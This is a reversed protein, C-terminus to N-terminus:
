RRLVGWDPQQAPDITPPTVPTVQSGDSRMKLIRLEGEFAIRRGNPSWAPSRERVDPTRTLNMRGSGDARMSFIDPDIAGPRLRSFALSRGDPSWNPDMDIGDAETLNREGTGDSRMRYIEFNGDRNTIFAIWRGTPSWDAFSDEDDNDTLQRIDTGDLRVTYIELDGDADSSFAIRKGSPSFSAGGESGTTGFVPRLHSGDARMAFIDFGAGSVTRSFAILRGNPSVAPGLDTIPADTLRDFRVGGPAIAAIDSQNPVGTGAAFVIRQVAGRAGSRMGPALGGAPDPVHHRYVNSVDAIPGGLNDADTQFAVFRGDASIWPRRSSEDAGAGGDRSALRVRDAALDYVYVNSIGETPGGLNDAVTDFAVFRGGASISAAQSTADGGQGGAAASQRSVLRTTRRELDRVYINEPGVIPGGLNDADTEFAVFRGNASIAAKEAQDDAGAGGRALGQRSVLTTRELARDYVYVNVVDEAPGGLNDADTEFAVFRGNASISPFRADADAGGGGASASRRSVHEIRDSRRDYVYVDTTFQSQPGGLNEAESEFAVFRGDASISALRSADDAAQGGASASRRSILEVRKGRRDYVYINVADAIPGGLNTALTTFAVFRGNASIVSDFSSADGPDAGTAASQRSVLQVRRRKRDYVYIQSVDEVASGLNTARSEFAVFRGNSSISPDLASANVGAGGASASQRSVLVSDGPAAVATGALVALAAIAGPVGAALRKLIM